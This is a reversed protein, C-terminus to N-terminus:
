TTHARARLLPNPPLTWTATSWGTKFNVTFFDVSKFSVHKGHRNELIAVKEQYNTTVNDLKEQQVFYVIERM